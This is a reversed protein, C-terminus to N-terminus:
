SLEFIMSYLLVLINHGKKSMLLLPAESCNPNGALDMNFPNKKEKSFLYAFQVPLVKVKCNVINSPWVGFKM